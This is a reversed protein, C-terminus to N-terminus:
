RRRRPGVAALGAALFLATAPLPVQLFTIEGVAGSSKFYLDMQSVGATSQSGFLTVLDIRAANGDGIHAGSVTQTFGATHLTIEVFESQGGGDLDFLDLSLMTVPDDFAFSITGGRVDDDPDNCYTAGCDWNENMILLFDPDEPVASYAAPAGPQPAGFPKLLDDDSTDKKATKTDFAVLYDTKSTATMTIGPMQDYMIMGHSMGPVTSLDIVGAIGPAPILMAVAAVAALCMRKM